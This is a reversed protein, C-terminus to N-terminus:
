SEEAQDFCSVPCFDGISVQGRFCSKLDDCMDRYGDSLERKFFSFMDCPCCLIDRFVYRTAVNNNNNARVYYCAVVEQDLEKRSTTDKKMGLVSNFLTFGIIFM